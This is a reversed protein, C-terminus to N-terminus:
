AQNETRADHERKDKGSQKMRIRLSRRKKDLAARDLQARYLNPSRTYELAWIVHDIKAIKRDYGSLRKRDRKSIAPVSPSSGDGQSIRRM